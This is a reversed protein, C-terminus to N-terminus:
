ALSDTRLSLASNGAAGQGQLLHSGPPPSEALWSAQGTTVDPSPLIPKQAPSGLSTRQRVGDGGGGAAWARGATPSPSHLAPHVPQSSAAHAPPRREM